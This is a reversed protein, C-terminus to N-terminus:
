NCKKCTKPYLGAEEDQLLADQTTDQLTYLAQSEKKMGM